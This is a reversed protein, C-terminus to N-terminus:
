GAVLHGVGDVTDFDKVNLPVNFIVVHDSDDTFEVLAGGSDVETVTARAVPYGSIRVVLEDGVDIFQSDSM